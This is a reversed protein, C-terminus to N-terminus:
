NQVRALWSSKVTISVYNIDTTHDLDTLISDGNNTINSCSYSHNYYISVTLSIFPKPHNVKVPNYFKLLPLIAPIVAIALASKDGVMSASSCSGEEPITKTINLWIMYKSAYFPKWSTGQGVLIWPVFPSAGKKADTFSNLIQRCVISGSIWFHYFNSWIMPALLYQHSFLKPAMFWRRHSLFLWIKAMKRLKKTKKTVRM